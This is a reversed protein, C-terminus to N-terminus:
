FIGTKKWGYGFVGRLGEPDAPDLDYEFIEGNEYKGIKKPADKGWAKALLFEIKFFKDFSIKKEASAGDSIEISYGYWKTGVGGFDCGASFRYGQYEKQRVPIDVPSRWDYEKKLLKSCEEWNGDFSRGGGQALMASFFLFFSNEPFMRGFIGADPSVIMKTM